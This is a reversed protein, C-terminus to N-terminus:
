ALHVTPSDMERMLEVLEKVKESPTDVPFEVRRGDKAQVTVKASHTERAIQLLGSVLAGLATGAAGVIAVVFTPDVGRFRPRNEILEFQLKADIIAGNRELLQKLDTSSLAASLVRVQPM